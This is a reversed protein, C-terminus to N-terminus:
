IATRVTDATIRHIVLNKMPVRVDSAKVIQESLKEM